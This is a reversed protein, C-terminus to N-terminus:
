GVVVQATACGLVLPVTAKWEDGVLKADIPASWDVDGPHLTLLTVSTAPPWGYAAEAATLSLAMEVSSENGLMVNVLVTPWGGTRETAPLYMANAVAAPDGDLAVPRASLLWRAGHMADFLPAYRLYAAEVVASGPNISHDNKPMPAMPYVNMLLHQQFYRDLLPNSDALNYTWLITPNRLGTWAVANLSAGESFTGDFAHMEDLRCLSNCNNLIVKQPGNPKGVADRPHLLEHLRNFTHRYSLRVARAPGFIDLGAGSSSNIPVWSLGDDADYNFFESYDLRDIAIGEFSPIKQLHRAAQDLILDEFVPEMTDMDTTGVWDSKPATFKGSVVSYGERLLASWLYDRLYANSGNPDPCPAADGNPRVGCTKPPGTYHSNIRTGWNGIDFYSLSHFGLKQIATYYAEIKAFTVNYQALGGNIPGLNLWEEQYPLFLGDYPM